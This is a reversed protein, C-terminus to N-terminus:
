HCPLAIEHSRGVLIRDVVSRSRHRLDQFSARRIPFKRYNGVGGCNRPLYLGKRLVSLFTIKLEIMTLRPRISVILDGKSAQYEIKLDPYLERIIGLNRHINLEVSPDEESYFRFILINQFDENRSLYAFAKLMRELSGLGVLVVSRIDTIETIKTEVNERWISFRTLIRDIFLLTKKLIPIRMYMVIGGLVAPIFYVAFYGLFMFNIALNGFIGVCTALVGLVV